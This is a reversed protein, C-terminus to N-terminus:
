QNYEYKNTQNVRINAGDDKLPITEINDYVERTVEFTLDFVDEMDDGEYDLLSKLSNGLTPSLECLDSLKLRENLIKKYLALPFPLNIIQFNYLALAVLTGVLQFMEEGEFSSDSFWIFRSEDYNKFMGYESSFLKQTLLMFFEKQVGGVFSHLFVTKTFM